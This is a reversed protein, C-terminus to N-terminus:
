PQGLSSVPISAEDAIRIERRQGLPIRGKDRVRIDWAPSPAVMFVREGGAPIVENRDLWEGGWDTEDSPSMQVGAISERTDNIIRLPITGAFRRANILSSIPMRLREGAELTIRRRQAITTRGCDQIRIDWSGGKPAVLLRESGPALTERAGLWDSGWLDAASPSLYVYCVTRATDNVLTIPVTTSLSFVRMPPPALSPARAPARAVCGMSGIVAAAAVLIVVARRLRRIM